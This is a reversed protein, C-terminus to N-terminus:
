KHLELEWQQAVILELLPLQKIGSNGLLPTSHSLCVSWGMLHVESVGPRSSRRIVDTEEVGLGGNTM